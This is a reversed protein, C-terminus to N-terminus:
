NLAKDRRKAVFNIVLTVVAPLLIGFIILSIFVDVVKIPQTKQLPFLASYLTLLLVSATQTLALFSFIPKFSLRDKHKFITYAMLQIVIMTFLISAVIAGPSVNLKVILVHVALFLVALGIAYSIQKSINM